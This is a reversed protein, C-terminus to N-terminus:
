RGSRLSKKLSNPTVFDSLREEIELLSSEIWQDLQQTDSKATRASLEEWTAEIPLPSHHEHKPDSYLPSM